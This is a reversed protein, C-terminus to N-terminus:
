RFTAEYDDSFLHINGRDFFLCTETMDSVLDVCEVLTLQDIDPNNTCSVTMRGAVSVLLGGTCDQYAVIKTQDAANCGDIYTACQTTFDAVTTDNCAAAMLPTESCYNAEDDDTGGCGFLTALSLAFVSLRTM